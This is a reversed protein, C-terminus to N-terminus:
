RVTKTNCVHASFLPISLTLLRTGSSEAPICTESSPPRKESAELRKAVVLDTEPDPVLAGYRGGDMYEMNSRIVM